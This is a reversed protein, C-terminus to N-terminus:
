ILKWAKTVEQRGSLCKFGRERESMFRADSAEGMKVWSHSEPNKKKLLHFPFSKAAKKAEGERLNKTQPEGAIVAIESTKHRLM